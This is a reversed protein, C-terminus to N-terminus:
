CLVKVGRAQVSPEIRTVHVTSPEDMSTKLLEGDMQRQRQRKHYDWRKSAVCMPPISELTIM